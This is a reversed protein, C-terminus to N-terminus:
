FFSGRWGPLAPMSPPTKADFRVAVHGTTALHLYRGDFLAGAFGLASADLTTTDFLKWSGAVGFAAHTDYRALMGHATGNFYPVLYIYRGDFAGGFFGRAQPNISATDFTAWSATTGFPATVDYRVVVGSFAGAGGYPVFYVHRGDYAAGQFGKALADVTTPDFTLWASPSTFGLTTDYRAVRGDVAYPALYVFRGDYVGGTFSVANAHVTATDFTSWAALSTFAAATDYRTLTGNTFPVFYLYRGDFTAGRFDKAQANVTTTDFPTWAGANSFAATTDYRMVTGNVGNNSPVFYVYRGDFVGGVFGKANADVTAADFTTWSATAGFTAQTDHRLVVGSSAGNFNPVFYAYRGDFACGTFGSKLDVQFIDFTSWHLPDTVDNYTPGAERGDGDVDPAADTTGADADATSSADGGDPQRTAELVPDDGIGLLTNCAGLLLSLALAVAFWRGHKVM